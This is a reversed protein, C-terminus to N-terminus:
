TMTLNRDKYNTASFRFGTLLSCSDPFSLRIFEQAAFIQYFYFSYNIPKKKAFWIERRFCVDKISARIFNFMIELFESRWYFSYIFPVLGALQKLPCYKPCIAERLCGFFVKVFLSVMFPRSWWIQKWLDIQENENSMKKKVPVGSLLIFWCLLWGINLCAAWSHFIEETLVWLGRIM